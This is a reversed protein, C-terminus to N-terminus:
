GSATGARASRLGTSRGAATTSGTALRRGATPRAASRFSATSFSPCSFDPDPHGSGYPGDLSLPPTLSSRSSIRSSLLPRLGGLQRLYTQVGAVQDFLNYM